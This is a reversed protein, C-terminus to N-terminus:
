FTVNAGVTMTRPVAFSGGDYGGVEPSNGDYKTIYALNNGSVYLRFGKVVHSLSSGLLQTPLDYSLTIERVCLYNGKEWYQKFPNDASADTGYNDDANYM